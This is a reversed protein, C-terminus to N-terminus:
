GAAAIQLLEDLTLWAATKLRNGPEGPLPRDPDGLRPLVLGAASFDGGETWFTPTIVTWLGAGVASQLGGISDEFAIARDPQTELADLVLRYIDPAPKKAAVQDGCGIVSFRDAGRAGLASELLADVNAATTTTAIALQCGAHLAEDLLRAIGDRLPVEGGAIRTGYFATKTAHIDPILALLRATEALPLGLKGVHSALREKGGTVALLDRYESQTWVWDLGFHRFADNFATRHAEETDALTGDVDFILADIGMAGVGAQHSSTPGPENGAGNACSGVNRRFAITPYM